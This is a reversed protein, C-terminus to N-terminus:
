VGQGGPSSPIPAACSVSEVHALDAAQQSSAVRREDSAVANLVSGRRSQLLRRVTDSPQAGRELWFRARDLRFSVETGKPAIPQYIGLEEIAMGDRPERADQVVIRYYPRKKSGLKKLRIRLSM